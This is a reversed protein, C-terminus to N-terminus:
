RIGRDSPKKPFGNGASHFCRSRGPIATGATMQFLITGSSRGAENAILVVVVGLVQMIISSTIYPMVGLAFVAFTTLAGGSFLQMFALVGGQNARDRLLQVQEVDIGPAPMFAGVRYLLIMLLTFLIRKRLDAVRFMNLM